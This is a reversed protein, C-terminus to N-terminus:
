VGRIDLLHYRFQTAYKIANTVTHCVKDCKYSELLSLSNCGFYCEYTLLVEEIYLEEHHYRWGQVSDTRITEGAFVSCFLRIGKRM